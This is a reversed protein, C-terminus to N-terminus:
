FDFQANIERLKLKKESVKRHRELFGDSQLKEKVWSRVLSYDFNDVDWCENGFINRHWYNTMVAFADIYQREGNDSHSIQDSHCRISVLNEGICSISTVDSFKLWLDLDEARTIRADYAGLQLALARKYFASSHSFPAAAVSMKKLLKDGSEPHSLRGILDGNEDILNANSGVLQVHENKRVYTLQTLLRDPNCLDDDDIRAIWEGKAVSLGYNLSDSLGTNPKTILVIRSDKKAYASLIEASNDTSGDDVIVFEFNTFSQRLVSEIAESLWRAGNHVSMLVSIELASSM